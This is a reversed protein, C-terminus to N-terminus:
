KNHAEQPGATQPAATIPYDRVERWAEILIEISRWPTSAVIAEAPTLALGGGPGLMQVAHFVEQRIEERDGRELTIPENVGGIISIKKDFSSKVKGLDVRTGGPIPDLLYHADYGIEVFMDLLPMFGISMTYGMLRGGQHVVHTLEKIRPMFFRHYLAPSWFSAGEYYGRRMILAAPTDLLIEVNRKDWQHIIDLLTNFMEPQDTALFLMGEAGCLWTAVDTGSSGHGVLLVGLQEAQRALAATRERFRSIDDGSLPHFLYKLKELDEETELLPKRYRPVNYDDLLEIRASKHSPWDPSSWDDTEYVEQRLVGAPTEYEKVMCPWREDPVAEKWERVKVDPHFTLPPYINLWPDIGISLWSQAEEVQNSWGLHPPPKFGFTKLHLPIHDPERYRLVALMRERSSLRKM